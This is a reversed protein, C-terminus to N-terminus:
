FIDMEWDLNVPPAGRVETSRQLGANQKAEVVWADIEAKVSVSPIEFPPLEQMRKLMAWAPFDHFPNLGMVNGLSDDAQLQSTALLAFQSVAANLNWDSIFLLLAAFALLPKVNKLTSLPSHVKSHRSLPAHNNCMFSALRNTMEFHKQLVTPDFVSKGGYETALKALRDHMAGPYLRKEHTMDLISRYRLSVERVAAVEFSFGPIRLVEPTLEIPEYERIYNYSARRQLKFRGPNGLCRKAKFHPWDPPAM